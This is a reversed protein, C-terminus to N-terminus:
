AILELLKSMRDKQTYRSSICRQYGAKAVAAREEPHSLYYKAKEALERDSSFFEAEKGELFYSLHDPTREALLFSGVAPIEFTRGASHLTNNNWKSLFCLCIKASALLKAYQDVSAPHIQDRNPLRRARRRWGSGCVRVSIGAALLALIMTETTPEYHGIFLVDSQLERREQDSMSPPHHIAPDYGFETLVVRRAGREELWRKSFSYSHVHVDYAPITKVFYRYTYKRYGFHESTYHVLRGALSQLREVTQPWLYVASDVYTLDPRFAEATQLITQNYAVIGPGVLLHRHVKSLWQWRWDLFLSQDLCKVQHGLEVLARRRSETLSGPRCPGTYLVRM